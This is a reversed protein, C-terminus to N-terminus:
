LGALTEGVKYIDGAGVTLIIDGARAEAAIAATLDALSDFSRSGPIAEALDKASIGSENKERAAFIPAILPSEMRRLQTVFDSFLAKTRTYTHPQFALIVRNYDLPLVADLLARLETPHHAYDDYIAAGNCTGKYEFRRAAGTFSSLGREIAEPPIGVTIAAAAAALANSLNHVGPTKLSIRCFFEGDLHVDCSPNLGTASVNVGRVHSNEALGFTLLERGLPELTDLTNPDDANCVIAGSDPVLSAFTRFSEKLADLGSFFDLHDADINLIVAVTPLFNHFSNYYECSEVVIVDGGGVRYGSGLAPLTGGIMVTPDREAALFIHTLMSTTTTKGHVGAVCVANDYGRMIYGWAQAREFVPIGNKRATQIEINDNRAAATRIIFGAAGLNEASHGISIPIGLGRLRSVNPSEAMDSGSLPIGRTHLIEALASMSVGGIGVLHAHARSEIYQGIEM